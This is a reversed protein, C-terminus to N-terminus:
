ENSSFFFFWCCCCCSQLFIISYFNIHFIEREGWIRFCFVFRLCGCDIVDNVFDVFGCHRVNVDFDYNNNDSLTFHLGGEKITALEYLNPNSSVVINSSPLHRRFTSPLHCWKKDTHMQCPIIHLAIPLYIYIYIYIIPLLAFPSIM